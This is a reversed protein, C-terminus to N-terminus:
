TIYIPHSYSDIQLILSDSDSSKSDLEAARIPLLYFTQAEIPGPIYFM